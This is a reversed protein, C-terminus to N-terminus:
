FRKLGSIVRIASPRYEAPFIISEYGALFGTVKLGSENIAVPVLMDEPIAASDSLLPFVPRLLLNETSGHQSTLTALTSVGSQRLLDLIAPNADPEAAYPIPTCRSLQWLFQEYGSSSGINRVFGKRRDSKLERRVFPKLGDATVTTIPGDRPKERQFVDISTFDDIHELDAQDALQLLKSFDLTALFALDECKVSLNVEIPGVDRRISLKKLQKHITYHEDEVLVKKRGTLARVSCTMRDRLLETPIPVGLSESIDLSGPTEPIITTFEFKRKGSSAVSMRDCYRAMALFGIGKSGIRLRGGRTKEGGWRRSGGGIRTFDHRFEFPNMGTGDDSVRVWAFDEAFDISVHEADADFANSILEKFAKVFPKYVGSLERLISPDVGGLRMNPM